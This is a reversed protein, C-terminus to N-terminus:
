KCPTDKEPTMPDTRRKRRKLATVCRRLCPTALDSYRASNPRRSSPNFASRGICKLLTILSTFGCRPTQGECEPLPPYESPGAPAASGATNDTNM